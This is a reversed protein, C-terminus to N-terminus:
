ALSCESFPLTQEPFCENLLTEESIFGGELLPHWIMDPNRSLSFGRVFGANDIFWGEIQHGWANNEYVRAFLIDQNVIPDETDKTCQFAYFFPQNDPESKEHHFQLRYKYLHM